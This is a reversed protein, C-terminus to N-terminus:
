SMVGLDVNKIGYNDANVVITCSGAVPEGFEIRTNNADVATMNVVVTKGSTDFVQYVYDTSNLKHNIEWVTAPTNQGHTYATEINTLPYWTLAGGDAQSYIWLIGSKFCIEGIAPDANFEASASITFTSNQTVNFDSLVGVAM